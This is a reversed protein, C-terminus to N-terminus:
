GSRQRQHAESAILTSAPLTVVSPEAAINSCIQGLIYLNWVAAISAKHMAIFLIDPHQLMYRLASQGSRTRAGATASSAGPLNIGLLFGASVLFTLADVILATYIGFLGTTLGGIMAGLALMVSWTVAGLANATGLERPSAIDPLIASRAPSFFGSVAFLLGTLM